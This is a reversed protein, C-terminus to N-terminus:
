ERNQKVGVRLEADSQCPTLLALKKIQYKKRTLTARAWIYRYIHCTVFKNVLICKHVTNKNM